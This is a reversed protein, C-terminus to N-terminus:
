DMNTDKKTFTASPIIHSRYLTNLRAKTYSDQVLM